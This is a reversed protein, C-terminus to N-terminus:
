SRRTLRLDQYDYSFDIDPSVGKMRATAPRGDELAFTIFLDEERRDTFRTRMTEGDYAELPGSLAPTRSFALTLGGDRTTRILIDGYWPDRWVGAYDALPLSPAAGAKQKADIEAAAAVSRANNTQQTQVADAIWDFDAKGMLIDLIGRQLTRV